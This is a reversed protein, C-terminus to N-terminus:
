ICFHNLIALFSVITVLDKSLCMQAYIEVWNGLCNYWLATFHALTYKKGMMQKTKVSHTICVNIHEELKLWYVQNEVDARLHFYLLCFMWVSAINVKSPLVQPNFM